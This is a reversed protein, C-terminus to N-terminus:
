SAQHCSHHGPQAPSPQQTPLCCCSREAAAAHALLPPMRLMFTARTGTWLVKGEAVLRLIQEVTSRAFSCITAIDDPLLQSVCNVPLSTGARASQTCWRLWGSAPQAPTASSSSGGAAAAALSSSSTAAQMCPRWGAAGAPGGTPGSASGAAAAARPCVLALPHVHSCELDLAASLWALRAAAPMTPATLPALPTAHTYGSHSQCSGDAASASSKLHNSHLLTRIAPRHPPCTRSHIIMIVLGARRWKLRAHYCAGRRGRGGARGAV